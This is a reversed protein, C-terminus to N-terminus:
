ARQRGPSSAGQLQFLMATQSWARDLVAQLRSLVPSTSHGLQDFVSAQAWRSSTQGLGLRLFRQRGAGHERIGSLSMLRRM